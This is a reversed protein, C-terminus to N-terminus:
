GQVFPNTNKEVSVSTDPGHGCTVRTDAPLTYIKDQISRSLVEFSGGPLDTRGVSGAFLLDGVIVRREPGGHVVYSVSGPSHGPTHLVELTLSGLELRQGDELWLDPDPPEAAELGFMRSHMPLSKYLALEDRHLYVPVSDGLIEKLEATGAAHDIHGHTHLIMIPELGSIRIREAILEAEDGPDIVAVKGADMDGLLICNAQIPGVAFVELFMDTKNRESSLDPHLDGAVGM